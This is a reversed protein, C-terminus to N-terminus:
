IFGSESTFVHFKFDEQLIVSLKESFFIGNPNQAISLVNKLSFKDFRFLFLIKTILHFKEKHAIKVWLCRWQSLRSIYVARYLTFRFVHLYNYCYLKTDNNLFITTFITTKCICQVSFFKRIIQLFRAEHSAHMCTFSHLKTDYEIM